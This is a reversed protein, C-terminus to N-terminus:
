ADIAWWAENALYFEGDQWGFTLDDDKFEPRDNLFDIADDSAEIMEDTLINDVPNREPIGDEPKWDYAAALELIGDYIYQGRHGDFICAARLPEGDDNYEGTPGPHWAKDSM